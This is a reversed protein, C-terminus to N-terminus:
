EGSNAIFASPVTPAGVQEEEKTVKGFGFGVNGLYSWSPGPPYLILIMNSWTSLIHGAPDLPSLIPIMIFLNVLIHGAPTLLVYNPDQNFLNVLLHGAQALAPPVVNPDHNYL